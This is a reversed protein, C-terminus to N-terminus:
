AIREHLVAFLALGHLPDLGEYEAAGLSFEQVAVDPRGLAWEAVVAAGEPVRSALWLQLPQEGDTLGAAFAVTQALERQILAAGRGDVPVVKNRILRVDGGAIVVFALAGNDIVTVLQPATGSPLLATLSSAVPAMRGVAIHAEAFLEEIASFPRDLGLLVAVHGSEGTALVDLRVEEPRCPLLKKLRWRVVEEAEQRRRPLSGVEVVVSRVWADPFVVSARSPRRALRELLQALGARLRERDIHLLGIPGLSCWAEGLTVTEVREFTARRRDACAYGLREGALVFAHQPPPTTLFTSLKM